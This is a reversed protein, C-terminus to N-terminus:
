GKKIWTFLYIGFIKQLEMVYDEYKEIENIIKLLEDDEKVELLIKSVEEFYEFPFVLRIFLYVKNGYDNIKEIVEYLLKFDSSLRIYTALDKMWYDFSLYLPNYFDITSLSNLANHSLCLNINDVNINKRYFIILMEAIGVFYDFSNNILKNYSFESLQKELYDIKDEWVKNMAVYKDKYENCDVLYFKKLDNENINEIFVNIKLLVYGETLIKGYKNYVFDHINLQNIKINKCFFSLNDLYEEDFICKSFYYYSDSIFFIIGEKYNKYDDITIDYNKKLINKM